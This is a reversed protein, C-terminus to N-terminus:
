RRMRAIFAEVASVEDPLVQIMLWTNEGWPEGRVDIKSADMLGVRREAYADLPLMLPLAGMTM